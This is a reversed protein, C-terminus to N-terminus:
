SKKTADAGIRPIFYFATALIWMKQLDDPVHEGTVFLYVIAGTISLAIGARVRLLGGSATLNILFQM